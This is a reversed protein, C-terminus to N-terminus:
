GTIIEKQGTGEKSGHSNEKRRKRIQPKAKKCRSCTATNRTTRWM